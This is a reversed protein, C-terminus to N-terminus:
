RWTVSAQGANFIGSGTELVLRTLEESLSVSGGGTFSQIDGDDSGLSWSAIWDNSGVGVRSLTFAGTVVGGGTIQFLSTGINSAVVDLAENRTGNSVYGTSVIASSTGLKIGLDSAIGIIEGGVAAMLLKVEQVGAPIGAFEVSTGSTTAQIATGGPLEGFGLATRAAPADIVEVSNDAPGGVLFGGAGGTIAPVELLDEFSVTGTGDVYVVKGEQGVLSPLDGALAAAIVQDRSEVVWPIFIALEDANAELWTMYSDVANNFAVKDQQRDPLPTPTPTITPTM